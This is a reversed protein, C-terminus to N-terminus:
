EGEEENGATRELRGLRADLGRVTNVLLAVQERLAADSMVAITNPNALAYARLHSSLWDGMRNRGGALGELLEPIDDDVSLNIRIKAM